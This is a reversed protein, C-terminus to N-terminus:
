SNNLERDPTRSSSGWKAVVETQAEVLIRGYDGMFPEALVKELCAALAWL